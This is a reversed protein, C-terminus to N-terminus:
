GLRPPRFIRSAQLSDAASGITRDVTANGANLDTRLGVPPYFTDISCSPWAMAGRQCYKSAAMNSTQSSVVGARLMAITQPEAPKGASLGRALPGTFALTLAILCLLLIRRIMM